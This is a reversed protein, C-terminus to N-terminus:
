QEDQYSQLKEVDLIRLKRYLLKIAGQDALDALCRRSTARTVGLLESLEDQTIEVENSTGALSLIRRCVRARVTLSLVESLQIIATATNMASLAYFYRWHDSQEKLYHAIANSPLHLLKCRTGAVLSILRPRGTFEANDGVWFGVEARHITVPEKAVLPFTLQISGEALGYLGDSQDGAHYIFQGPEFSRWRGSREVWDRFNQPQDALWGVNDLPWIRSQQQPQDLSITGDGQLANLRLTLSFNKVDYVGREGRIM